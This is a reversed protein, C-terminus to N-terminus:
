PQEDKFMLMLGAVDREGCDVFDVRAHVHNAVMEARSVAELLYVDYM